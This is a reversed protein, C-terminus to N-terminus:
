VPHPTKNNESLRFGIASVVVRLVLIPKIPLKPALLRKSFEVSDAPNLELIAGVM